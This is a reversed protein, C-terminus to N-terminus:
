NVRLFALTTAAACMKPYHTRLKPAAARFARDGLTTKKTIPVIFTLDDRSRLGYHTIRPILMVSIYESGHGHVSNFTLVCVLSVTDNM